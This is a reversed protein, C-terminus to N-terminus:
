SVVRKVIDEASFLVFFEERGEFLRSNSYGMHSEVPLPQFDILSQAIDDAIGMIFEDLEAKLVDSMRIIQLSVQRKDFLQQAAVDAVIMQFLAIHALAAIKDPYFEACCQNTVAFVTRHIKNGENLANLVNLKTQYDDSNLYLNALPFLFRSDHVTPTLRTQAAAIIAQNVVDREPDNRIIDIIKRYAKKTYKKLNTCSKQM